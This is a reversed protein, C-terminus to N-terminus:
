RRELVANNSYRGTRLATKLEDAGARKIRRIPYHTWGDRSSTANEYGLFEFVEFLRCRPCHPGLSESGILGHRCRIQVYGEDLVVVRMPDIGLSRLAVAYADDGGTTDGWGLVYDGELVVSHRDLLVTDLKIM